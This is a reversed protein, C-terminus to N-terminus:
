HQEAKPPLLGLESPIADQKYLRIIAESITEDIKQTDRFVTLMLTSCTINVYGVVSCPHVEKSLYERQQIEDTGALIAALADTSIQLKFRHNTKM